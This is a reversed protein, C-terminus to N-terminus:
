GTRLLKRTRLVEAKSQPIFSFSLQDVMVAYDEGIELMDVDEEDYYWKVQVQIGKNQLEMLKYFIMLIRKSSAINFFDFKFVFEVSSGKATKTFADLWNLIPRFFLEANEPFCRGSIIFKQAAPNLIVQPTVKTASRTIPEM